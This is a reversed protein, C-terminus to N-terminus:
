PKKDAAASPSDFPGAEDDMVAKNSRLHLASGSDLVDQKTAPQQQQDLATTTAAATSKSVDVLHVVTPDAPAPSPDGAGGPGFIELSSMALKLSCIWKNRRVAKLSGNQWNSRYKIEASLTMKGQGEFDIQSLLPNAQSEGELLFFASM